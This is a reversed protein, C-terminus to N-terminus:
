GLETHLQLDLRRFCILLCLCVSTGLSGFTITLEIPSTSNENLCDYAIDVETGQNLLAVGEYPFLDNPISAEAVVENAPYGIKALKFDYHTVNNPGVPQSLRVYLRTIPGQEVYAFSDNVNDEFVFESSTPTLGISLFPTYCNVTFKWTVTDYGDIALAVTTTEQGNRICVISRPKARPWRKFYPHKPHTTEAPLLEFVLENCHCPRTCGIVCLILPSHARSCSLCVKAALTQHKVM